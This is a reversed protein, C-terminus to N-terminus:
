ETPELVLCHVRLMSSPLVTYAADDAAILAISNCVDGDKAGAAYSTEWGYNVRSSCVNVVTKVRISSFVIEVQFQCFLQVKSAISRNGFLLVLKAFVRLLRRTLM